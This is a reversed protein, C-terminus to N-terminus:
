YIADTACCGSLLWLLSLLLLRLLLPVFALHGCFHDSLLSPSSFLPCRSLAALLLCCAALSLFLSFSFSLSLSLPLSFCLFLYLSFSLSLSLSLSLSVSFVAVFM